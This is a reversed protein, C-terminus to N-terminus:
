QGKISRTEKTYERGAVSVVKSSSQSELFSGAKSGRQKHNRRSPFCKKWIYLYSTEMVNKQNQDFTINEAFSDRVMSKIFGIEVRIEM